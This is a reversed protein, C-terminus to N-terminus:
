RPAVDGDPALADLLGAQLANALAEIDPSPPRDATLAPVIQRVAAVAEVVGRGPQLPRRFELGQAACILEIAIVRWALPLLQQLKIAATSGMSVFDEM